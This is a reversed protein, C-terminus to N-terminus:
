CTVEQCNLRDVNGFREAMENCTFMSEAKEGNEYFRVLKRECCYSYESNTDALISCSDAVNDVNSYGFYSRIKSAFDGSSTTFFVIMFALLVVALILIVLTNVALELGKKNM